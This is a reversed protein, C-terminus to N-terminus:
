PAWYIELDRVQQAVLAYVPLHKDGEIAQELLAKKPEGFILLGLWHSKVLMALNLSLRECPASPAQAILACPAQNIDLAAFLHPMQAFLSAFHGDEGMGLVCVDAARRDNLLEGWLAASDVRNAGLRPDLVQAHPFYEHLLRTNSDQADAPVWREDTPTLSLRAWDLPQQNLETFLPIPTSGGALLALADSHNAQASQLREVLTQTLEAICTSRDAFRHWNLAM